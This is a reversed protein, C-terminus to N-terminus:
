NPVGQPFQFVIPLFLKNILPRSNASIIGNGTQIIGNGTKFILKSSRSTTSFCNTFSTKQDSAQFQCFNNWKRNSYNWKRDQFYSFYKWKRNSCNWKRNQFDIKIRKSCIFFMNQDSTFFFLCLFQAYSRLVM